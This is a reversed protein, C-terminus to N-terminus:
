RDSGPRVVVSDGGTYTPPCHKTHKPKCKPPPGVSPKPKSLSLAGTSAAYSTAVLALLAIMAAIVSLAQKRSRNM